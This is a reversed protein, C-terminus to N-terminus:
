AKDAPSTKYKEAAKVRNDLKYFVAAMIIYLTTICTM